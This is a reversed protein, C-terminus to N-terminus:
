DFITKSTYYKDVCQKGKFHKNDPQIRKAIKEYKRMREKSLYLYLGGHFNNSINYLKKRKNKYVVM